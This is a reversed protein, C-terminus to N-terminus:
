QDKNQLKELSQDLKAIKELAKWDKVLEPSLPNPWLKTQWKTIWKLKM